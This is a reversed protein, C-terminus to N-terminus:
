KHFGNLGKTALFNKRAQGIRGLVSLSLREKWTAEWMRIENDTKDLVTQLSALSPLPHSSLCHGTNAWPLDHVHQRWAEIALQSGPSPKKIWKM